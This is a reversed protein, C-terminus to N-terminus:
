TLGEKIVVKMMETTIDEIKPINGYGEKKLTTGIMFKCIKATRSIEAELRAAEIRNDYFEGDTLVIFLNRKGKFDYGLVKRYVGCISTGGDAKPNIMASEIATDFTKNEFERGNFDLQATRIGELNELAALFVVLAEAYKEKFCSTSGSIDRAIVIDVLVKEKKRYLYNKGEEGTISNVYADQQKNFNIDGEKVRINKYDTFASEFVRRLSEIENRRKLATDVFFTSKVKSEIIDSGAKSGGNLLSDINSKMKEEDFIKDAIKKMNSDLQGMKAKKDEKSLGNNQEIVQTITKDENPNTSDNVEDEVMRAIIESALIADNATGRRSLLVLPVIKSLFSKDAKKTVINYRAFDFLEQMKEKLISQEEDMLGDVPNSNFRKDLCSLLINFFISCEPFDLSLLYEARADELINLVIMRFQSQVEFGEFKSYRCHALEHLIVAIEFVEYDIADALWSNNFINECNDDNLCIYFVDGVKKTVGIESGMTAATFHTNIIDEDTVLKAPTSKKPKNNIIGKSGVTTSQDKYLDENRVHLIRINKNPCIANVNIDM